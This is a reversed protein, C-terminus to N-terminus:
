PFDWDFGMLDCNINMLDKMVHLSKALCSCGSRPRCPKWSPPAFWERPGPSRRHIRWHARGKLVHSLSEYLLM